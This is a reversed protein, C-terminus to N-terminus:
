GGNSGLSALVRSGNPADYRQLIDVENLMYADVPYKEARLQGLATRLAEALEDATPKEAM